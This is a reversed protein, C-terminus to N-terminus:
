AADAATSRIIELANRQDVTPQVARTVVDLSANRLETAQEECHGIMQEVASGFGNTETSSQKNNPSPSASGRGRDNTKARDSRGDGSRSPGVSSKGPKQAQDDGKVRFLFTFYSGDHRAEAVSSMGLM